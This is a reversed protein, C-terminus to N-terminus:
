KLSAELARRGKRAWRAPRGILWWARRGLAVSLLDGGGCYFVRSLLLLLAITMGAVFGGMHAWHAVPGGLRMAVMLADFAFYIILLWFGRVIFISYELQFLVRLWMTCYVNHAPFLVLYMGALGMIAGSAGLMQGTPPDIYMHSLAAAVTLVPYLILMAINGLLANVRSGFVLLFLMNSGLHMFLRMASGPDHLFAHTLLQYRKFEGPKGMEPMVRESIMEQIVRRDLDRARVSGQLEEKRKEFEAREEGELEEVIGKVAYWPLEPAVRAQGKAPWLMLEHGPFEWGKANRAPFYFAVSAIVTVLVIVWTAWPRRRGHADSSIPIPLPTLWMLWSLARIWYDAREHLEFEDRPRAVLVPRGTEPYIGCFVCVKARRPLPERCSPCAPGDHVAAPQEVPQPPAAVATVHGFRLKFEGIQIVDGDRLAREAIRRDAVFVGSESEEDVVRWGSPRGDERVLRCHKRSVAAGKLRIRQGEERGMEIEARGGLFIREGVRGPGAVIELFADFDSEEAGDRLTEGAVVSLVRACEACRIARAGADEALEYWCGCACEIQIM